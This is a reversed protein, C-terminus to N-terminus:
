GTGGKLADLMRQWAAAFAKEEAYSPTVRLIAVQHKVMEKCAAELESLRKATLEVEKELRAITAADWEERTPQVDDAPNDEASM